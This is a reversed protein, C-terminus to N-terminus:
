IRDQFPPFVALNVPMVDGRALGHLVAKHFAEVPSHPILTQVFVQEIAESVGAIQNGRPSGVEIVVAWM